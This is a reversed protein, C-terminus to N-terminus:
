FSEWTDAILTFDSNDLDVRISRLPLDLIKDKTKSDNSLYNLEEGKLNEIQYNTLHAIYPMLDRIKMKTENPMEGGWIVNDGFVM